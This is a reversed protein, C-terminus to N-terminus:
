DRIHSESSKVKREDKGELVLKGSQLIIVALDTLGTIMLSVSSSKGAMTLRVVKM